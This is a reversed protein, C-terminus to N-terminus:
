LEVGLSSRIRGVLRTALLSHGGLAFFDDEVAVRGLGLTEAFLDALIEEHATRPPRGGTGASSEPEPLARRDVKGNTTLPLADLTVFAS